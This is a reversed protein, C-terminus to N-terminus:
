AFERHIIWIALVDVGPGKILQPWYSEREGFALQHAEQLWSVLIRWEM